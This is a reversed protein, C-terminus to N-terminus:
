YMRSRLTFVARPVEAGLSPLPMERAGRRKSIAVIRTGFGDDYVLLFGRNDFGGELEVGFTIRLSVFDRLEKEFVSDFATAAKWKVLVADFENELIGEVVTLEKVRALQVFPLMRWDDGLSKKIFYLFNQEFATMLLDSFGFWM